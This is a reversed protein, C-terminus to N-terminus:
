RTRNLHSALVIELHIVVLKAFFGLAFLHYTASDIVVLAISLGNIFINKQLYIPSNWWLNSVTMIMVLRGVMWFISFNTRPFIMGYVKFFGTVVFPHCSPM